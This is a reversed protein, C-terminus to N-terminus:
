TFYIIQGIEPEPKLELQNLTKKKFTVNLLKNVISDM